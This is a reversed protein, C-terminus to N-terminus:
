PPGFEDTLFWVCCFPLERGVEGPSSEPGGGNPVRDLLDGAAVPIVFETIERLLDVSDAFSRPHEPRWAM